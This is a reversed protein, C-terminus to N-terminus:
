MSRLMIFLYFKLPFFFLRVNKFMKLYTSGVNVKFGLQMWSLVSRRLASDKEGV